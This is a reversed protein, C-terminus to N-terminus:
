RKTARGHPDWLVEGARVTLECRLEQTGSVEAGKVDAFSFRGTQVALVAVDAVAGEALRGLDPRGIADAPASTARRLLGPITPGLAALKSVVAVLDHMSGRRSTRHADTSLTDPVFGQAVAPAAQSWVFSAGGYGLDFLVGRDRAARVFPLLRGSADVVPARGRVDAFTHTFIDGPGLRRLLLDELSLAPAHGGFDVMVRTRTARAASVARDIPEFGPGAYHAVKVGVLVDRHQEIIRATAAADMDGTDQEYVGGRMGEGVINVFALVRTKSPAVVTERFRQFSRHGSSGADVVTTTCSSPGLEDPLVGLTTGALYRNREHGFFVHTHLDVLGPVVLLGAADIVLRAGTADIAPAIRAVRGGSIAVDFIGDRGSEPDLVRGHAIVADYPLAAEARGEPSADLEEVEEALRGSVAASATTGPGPPAEPFAAGAILAGTAPRCAPLAVLALALGFVSAPRL